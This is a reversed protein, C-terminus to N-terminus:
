FLTQGIGFHVEACDACYWIGCYLCRYMYKWSVLKNCGCRIKVHEIPIKIRQQDLILEVQKKMWELKQQRQAPTANSEYVPLDDSM